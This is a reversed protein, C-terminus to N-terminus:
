VPRRGLDCRGSACRDCPALACCAPASRRARWAGHRGVLRRRRAAPRLARSMPTARRGHRSRDPERGLRRASAAPTSRRTGVAARSQPLRAADRGGAARAAPARAAIDLMDRAPMSRFSCAARARSSSSMRARRSARRVGGRDRGPRDRRGGRAAALHPAIARRSRIPIRRRCLPADVNGAARLAEVDANGGRGADIGAAVPKMGVRALAARSWRRAAVRGCGRRAWAPTPARSSSAANMPRGLSARVDRDRPGGAHAAAGGEM